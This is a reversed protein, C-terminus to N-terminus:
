RGGRRKKPPTTSPPRLYLPRPKTVAAGPTWRAAALGAVVAADPIGPASSRTATIGAADLAALARGAADGAVVVARRDRGKGGATLLSPLEDPLLARPKGMPALDPAFAQAYVDARKADLVVLLQRGHREAEPVGAAVAELTTVALCPLGGALALGRAAALGIRLGTFAGPGNTVAVADLASFDEGAENMVELIMPMLREAHGRAMPELRRAVVRGDRVVAASCANTATDFGLIRM